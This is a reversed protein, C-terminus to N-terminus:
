PHTAIWAKTRETTDLLVQFARKSENLYAAAGLAVRQRVHVANREKRMWDVTDFLTKSIIGFERAIRAHWWFSQQRLTAETSFRGWNIARKKAAVPEDPNVYLHASGRTHKRDIAYGNCYSLLAECLSAYDVIQARVHAAREEERALTVLGLKYIWRSGYFVQAMAHRLKPEKVHRFMGNELEDLEPIESRAFETFAEIAREGIYEQIPKRSDGSSEPPM